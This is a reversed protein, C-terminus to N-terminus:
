TFSYVARPQFYGSGTAVTEESVDLTLSDYAQLVLGWEYEGFLDRTESALVFISGSLVQGVLVNDIENPNGGALTNRKAIVPADGAQRAMHWRLKVNSLVHGFEIEAVFDLTLTDGARKKFHM